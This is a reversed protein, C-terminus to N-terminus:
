RYLFKRNHTLHYTGCYECFYSTMPIQKQRNFTKRRRTKFRRICNGAEKKSFCTKMTKQCITKNENKSYM